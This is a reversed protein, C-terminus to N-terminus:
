QLTISQNLYLNQRVCMFKSHQFLINLNKILYIQTFYQFFILRQNRKLQNRQIKFIQNSKQCCLEFIYGQKLQKLLVENIQNIIQLIRKIHNFSVNRKIRDLLTYHIGQIIKFERIKITRIQNQSQFISIIKQEFSKLM